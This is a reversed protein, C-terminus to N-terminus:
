HNEEFVLLPSYDRPDMTNIEMDENLNKKLMENTINNMKFEVRPDHKPYKQNNLHVYNHM